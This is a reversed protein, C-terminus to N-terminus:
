RRDALARAVERVFHPQRSAIVGAVVTLGLSLLPRERFTAAVLELPAIPALPSPAAAVVEIERSEQKVRDAASWAFLAVGVIAAASVIGAAAAVGLRPETLAYLAFGASWVALAAAAAVAAVAVDALKKPGIM